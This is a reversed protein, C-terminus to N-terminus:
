EGGCACAGHGGCDAAHLLARQDLGYHEGIGDGLHHEVCGTVAVRLPGYRAEIEENSLERGQMATIEARQAAAEQENALRSWQFAPAGGCRHCMPADSTRSM